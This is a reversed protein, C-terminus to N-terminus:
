RKPSKTNRESSLLQDTGSSPVNCRVWVSLFRNFCLSRTGRQAEAVRPRWLLSGSRQWVPRCTCPNLRSARASVFAHFTALPGGVSAGAKQRLPVATGERGRLGACPHQTAGWARGEVCVGTLRRSPPASAAAHSGAAGRRARPTADRAPWRAPPHRAAALTAGRRGGGTGM